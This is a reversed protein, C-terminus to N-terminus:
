IWLIFFSSISISDDLADVEHFWGDPIFLIDGPKLVVRSIRANMAKPFNEFDPSFLSLPVRFYEKRYLNGEDEPPALAVLKEGEIQALLVAGHTHPSVLSGRGSILLTLNKRKFLESCESDESLLESVFKALLHRTSTKSNGSLRENADYKLSSAYYYRQIEGSQVGDQFEKLKMKNGTSERTSLGFDRVYDDAIFWAFYEKSDKTISFDIDSEPYNEYFYEYTLEMIKWNSALGRFVVPKSFLAEFEEGTEPWVDLTAEEVLEITAEASECSIEEANLLSFSLVIFLSLMILINKILKM